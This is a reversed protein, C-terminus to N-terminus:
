ISGINSASVIRHWFPTGINLQDIEHQKGDFFLIEQELEELQEVEGDLYQQLRQIMTLLRQHLGGVKLDFVDLGFVKSEALWQQHYIITFHQLRTMLEPLMQDKLQQLTSKNKQQYATRVDIGIQCKWELFQCLSLQTEFLYNWPTEKDLIQEYMRACQKFHNAYSIPEIHRDFLGCLPDQYFIYKPPNVACIGPSDNGPTFVPLDLTMFDLYSAQACTIFRKELISQSSSDQYCLEAWLQLSPLNAFMSCESGNDGWSTILVQQIDHEKCSEHGLLAVKQSFANHPQFGSWKWVGGAFMINSTMERHKQFMRDYTEKTESYYDWYILSVDEPIVKSIEPSIDCNLDYYSGGSALRFFMDSWMMPIFNSANALQVVENFHNLMLSLRDQYGHHNLYNGLGVMQAEDMGINIRRTRFAQSLTKFMSEILEYTKPEGILLIDGYDVLDQFVKWKLPQGLHALTQIAPILEIGLEDAYDDMSKLEEVTYRGRMYGFYPYGEVEYIDELYLQVSTYGMLAVTNMMKKFSNFHPVANRSCDLMFGLEYSPIENTIGFDQHIMKEVLLGLARIFYQKSALQIVWDKEQQLIVLGELSEDVKIFVKSGQENLEIQLQPAIRRAAKKFFVDESILNIKLM